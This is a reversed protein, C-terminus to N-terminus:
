MRNRLQTLRASYAALLTKLDGSVTAHQDCIFGHRVQFIIKLKVCSSHGEFVSGSERYLLRVRAVEPEWLTGMSNM